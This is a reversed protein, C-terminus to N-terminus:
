LLARERKRASGHSERCALCRGCRGMRAFPLCQGPHSKIRGRSFICKCLLSLKPRKLDDQTAVELATEAATPKQSSSDTEAGQTLKGEDIESPREGQYAEIAKEVMVIWDGVGPRDANAILEETTPYLVEALIPAQFVDCQPCACDTLDDYTEVSGQEFTGRWHCKPCELILNKYDDFYNFHKTSM